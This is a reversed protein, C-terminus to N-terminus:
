HLGPAAPMIALQGRQVAAQVGAQEAWQSGLCEAIRRFAQSLRMEGALAELHAGIKRALAMRQEAAQGSREHATMLVLAAALQAELATMEVECVGSAAQASRSQNM